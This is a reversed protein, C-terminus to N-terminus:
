KCLRHLVKKGPSLRRPYLIFASSQIIYLV